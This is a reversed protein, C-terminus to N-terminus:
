QAQEALKCGLRNEPKLEHRMKLDALVHDASQGGNASVLIENERIM